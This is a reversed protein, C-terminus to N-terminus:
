KSNKSRHRFFIYFLVFVLIPFLNLDIKINKKINNENNELVKKSM